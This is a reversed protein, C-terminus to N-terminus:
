ESINLKFTQTENLNIEGTSEPQLDFDEDVPASTPFDAVESEFTDPIGFDVPTSVVENTEDVEPSSFDEVQKNSEAVRRQLEAMEDPTFQRTADFSAADNSDPVHEDLVKEVVEKFAADSNQLYIATPQLLEGWEPASALSLQGEVAALLRQHFVRSQRKLEEITLQNGDLKYYKTDDGITLSQNDSNVTVPKSEKEGDAEDEEWTGTNGSITLTIRDNEDTGKYTGDLGETQKSAESSQSSSVKSSSQQTSASSEPTQAKQNSCAALLGLVAMSALSLTLKKSLTM